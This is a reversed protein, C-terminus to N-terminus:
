FISQWMKVKSDEFSLDTTTGWVTAPWARDNKFRAIIHIHLQAVMNGIAAINIKDPSVAADLGKSVLNIESLLLAQDDSSLEFIESINNRKPVLIFWDLEGDKILRLQCLELDRVLLSDRELIPNLDFKTQTNM